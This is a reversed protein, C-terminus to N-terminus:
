IIIDTDGLDEDSPLSAIVSEKEILEPDILPLGEKERRELELFAERTSWSLYRYDPQYALIFGGWCICLTITMFMTIRHVFWDLEPDTPEYGHSIWNKESAPNTDAFHKELRKLEESKEMPEVTTSIDKNKKSTSILCASQQLKPHRLRVFSLTRGQRALARMFTAM